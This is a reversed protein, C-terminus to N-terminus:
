GQRMGLKLVIPHANGVSINELTNRLYFMHPPTRADGDLKASLPPM